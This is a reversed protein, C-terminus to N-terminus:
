RVTERDAPVPAGLREDHGGAAAAEPHEEAYRALVREALPDFVTEAKRLYLIGLVLVMLFQTLALVYGVTLGQYVREGMFGPAVATLVVFGMYWSLFFITGPIVFSRRAQVLERFEPEREIAEWDIRQEARTEAEARGEAVTREREGESTGPTLREAM